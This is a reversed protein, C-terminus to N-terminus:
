LNGPDYVHSNPVFQIYVHYHLFTSKVTGNFYRETENTSIRGYWKMRIPM